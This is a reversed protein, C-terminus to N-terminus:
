PKKEPVGTRKRVAAVALCESIQIIPKSLDFCEGRGGLGLRLGLVARLM